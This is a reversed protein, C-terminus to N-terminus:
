YGREEFGQLILKVQERNHAQRQEQETPIPALAKKIRQLLKRMNTVERRHNYIIM